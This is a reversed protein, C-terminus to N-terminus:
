VLTMIALIISFISLILAPFGLKYSIRTASDFHNWYFMFRNSPSIELNIFDGFSNNGILYYASQKDLLIQNSRVGLSNGSRWVRYIKRVDGDETRHSICVIRRIRRHRDKEKSFFCGFLCSYSHNEMFVDSCNAVSDYLEKIESYNANVQWTEM